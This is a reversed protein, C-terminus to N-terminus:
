GALCAYLDERSYGDPLYRRLIDLRDGHYLHSTALVTM